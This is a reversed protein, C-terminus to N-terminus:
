LLYYFIGQTNSVSCSWILLQHFCISVHNQCKSLSSTCCVSLSSSLDSVPSTWMTNLVVPCWGSHWCTGRYGQLPMHLFVFPFWCCELQNEITSPVFWLDLAVYGWRQSGPSPLPSQAHLVVNGKNRQLAKFWLVPDLNGLNHQTESGSRFHKMGTFVRLM